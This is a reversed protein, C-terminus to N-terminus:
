SFVPCVKCFKCAFFFRKDALFELARCVRRAELCRLHEIAFPCDQAIISAIGQGFRFGISDYSCVDRDVFKQFARDSERCAVDM